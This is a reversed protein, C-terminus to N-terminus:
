LRALKAGQAHRGGAPAAGVIAGADRSVGTAADAQTLGEVECAWVLRVLLQEEPDIQDLKIFRSM